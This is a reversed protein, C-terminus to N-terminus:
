QPSPNSRLLLEQLVTDRWPPPNGSSPPPSEPPPTGPMAMAPTVYTKFFADFGGPWATWSTGDINGSMMTGDPYDPISCDGWWWIEGNGTSLVIAYQTGASVYADGNITAISEGSTLASLPLTGSGIETGSPLGDDTVTQISVSLPTTASHNEVYVGVRDLIGSRRATFSQGAALYGGLIQYAAPLGPYSQDVTSPMVYTEFATDYPNTQWSGASTVESGSPYSAGNDNDALRVYGDGSSSLVLAYQTGATVYGDTLGVDVWAPSGAPPIASLPITGGSIEIGSPLGAATVTQISVDVPGTAPDSSHNELEVSVLDLMGYLGATFTQGVRQGSGFLNFRNSVIQSQDRSPPLVYTEFGADTNDFIEEWTDLKVVRYGEPYLDPDSTTYMYWNVMGGDTSLLLAYQTGAAVKAFNIPVDVWAPSGAPPIENLPITGSGIEIGSPLGDDALTQISVHVSGTAPSRTSSALEVRVRDMLGYMGATFVQGLRPEGLGVEGYGTTVTQSQDLMDGSMAGASQPPGSAVPAGIDTLFGINGPGHVQYPVTHDDRNGIGLQGYSNDGWAWVSGDFKVALSHYDGAAVNTVDSLYGENGPGHVQYPVTHDNDSHLGLQGDGGEGWSWLSGDDKVALSHRLGAAVKTIGTLYGVNDPGHVQYPVTHDNDSHLGLQGHGGEGWSWVTGNTLALSHKDGADVATVFGTLGSGTYIPVPYAEDDNSHTGLQGSGNDGWSWVAGDKIALGHHGGGALGGVVGMGNYFLQVPVPTKRDTTTGEGLQFSDNHGWAWVTGDQRVSFSFDAGAEVDVVDTLYGVNDPGHVKHPSSYDTTNGVGLQGYNNWGWAWVTGDSKLALNHSSGVAIDVVGTLGMVQVPTYQNEMIPFPAGNGLQGWGNNGWAWVTGDKKLALSHTNGAGIIRQGPRTSQTCLSTLLEETDGIDLMVPGTEPGTTQAAVNGVVFVAAGALMAFQKM